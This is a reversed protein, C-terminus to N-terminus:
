TNSATTNEDEDIEKDLDKLHQHEIQKSVVIDNIAIAIADVISTYKHDRPEFMQHRFTKYLDDWPVGARLAKSLTIAWIDVFGSLTSGVKAIKFFVEAPKYSNDFFNIIIYIEHGCADLKHTVGYRIDKLKEM